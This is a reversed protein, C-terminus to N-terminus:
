KWSELITILNQLGMYTETDVSGLLRMVKNIDINLERQRQTM